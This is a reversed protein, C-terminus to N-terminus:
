LRYHMNYKKIFEDMDMQGMSLNCMMCVPRLNELSTSGGMKESKIHGSHFSAYSIKEIKCCQCLGTIKNKFYIRWVSNRVAKPIKEKIYPQLKDIDDDSKDDIFDITKNAVNCEYCYKYTASTFLKTCKPCSKKM